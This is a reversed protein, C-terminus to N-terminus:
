QHALQALSGEETRELLVANGEQALVLPVGQGHWWAILENGREEEADMAVKLIAATNQWIVPLLRSTRNLIPEGDPRLQWREIFDGFMQGRRQVTGGANSTLM